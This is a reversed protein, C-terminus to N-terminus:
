YVAGAFHWGKACICRSTSCQEDTRSYSPKFDIVSNADLYVRPSTTVAPVYGTPATLIGGGNIEVDGSPAYIKGYLAVLSPPILTLATPNNNIDTGVTQLGGISVHGGSFPYSYGATDSSVSIPSEILSSSGTTISGGSTARLEIQGNQRVATISRIYGDQEITKGYMGVM